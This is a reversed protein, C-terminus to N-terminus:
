PGAPEDLLERIFQQCASNRDGRWGFDRYAELEARLLVGAPGPYRHALQLLARNITAQETPDLRAPRVEVIAGGPYIPHPTTLTQDYTPATM